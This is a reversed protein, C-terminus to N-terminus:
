RAAAYVEEFRTTYEAAMTPDLIFLSAENNAWANNSWNPTGTIVQVGDVILVKSHVAAVKIPVGAAILRQAPEDNIYQPAVVGRVAVGRAKAAAIADAVDTRTWAFVMLDLSTAAGDIAALLARHWSPANSLPSEPGFYVRYPGGEVAPEPTRPGFAREVFMRTFEAQYASVIAPEEIVMADNMDICLSRETLNGSGTWLFAGDVIAFKHHMYRSRADDIITVRPDAELPALECSLDGGANRPCKDDDIVVEVTLEPNTALRDLLADVPCALDTDYIALQIRDTACAILNLLQGLFRDDTPSFLPRNTQPQECARRVPCDCIEPPPAADPAGADPDPNPISAGADPRAADPSSVDELDVGADLRYQDDFPRPKQVTTLEGHDCAALAVFVCIIIRASALM